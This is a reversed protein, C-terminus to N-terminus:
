SYGDCQAEIELCYRPFSCVAQGKRVESQSWNQTSPAIGARGDCLYGFKEGGVGGLQYM